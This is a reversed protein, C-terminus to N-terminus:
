ILNLDRSTEEIFRIIGDEASQDRQSGMDGFGRMVVLRDVGLDEFRKATDADV